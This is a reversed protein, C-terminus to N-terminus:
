PTKSARKVVTRPKFVSSRQQTQLGQADDSANVAPDSATAPMANSRKSNSPLKDFVASLAESSAQQSRLTSLIISFRPPLVIITISYEDRAFAM